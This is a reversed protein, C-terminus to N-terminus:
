KGLDAASVPEVTVEYFWGELRMEVFDAIVDPRAPHEDTSKIKLYTVTEIM